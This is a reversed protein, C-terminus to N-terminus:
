AAGKAQHRDYTRQADEAHYRTRKGRETTDAVRRWDDEAAWRWVTGVPVRHIQSLQAATLWPEEDKRLRRALATWEGFEHAVECVPCVIPRLLGELGEDLSNVIATLTGTCAQELHTDVDCALPRECPGLPVRRTRSLTLVSRLASTNERAERLLDDIWPQAACWDLHTLLFRSIARLDNAPSHLGDPHEELVLLCWSAMLGHAARLADSVAETFPLAPERTGTVKPGAGNSGRPLADEVDTLLAPLEALHKTLSAHHGACLLGVTAQRPRDPDRYHPAVCATWAGPTQDVFQHRTM